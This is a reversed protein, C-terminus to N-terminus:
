LGDSQSNGRSEVAASSRLLTSALWHRPSRGCRIFDFVKSERSISACITARAFLHVPRDLAQLYDHLLEGAINLSCAEDETQYYEWRAISIDKALCGLLLRDFCQLSPSTSLWLSDPLKSMLFGQFIMQIRFSSHHLRTPLAWRRWKLLSSTPPQWPSRKRVAKM